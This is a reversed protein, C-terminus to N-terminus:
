NSDETKGAKLKALVAFPNPKTNSALKAKGNCDEHRPSYPLALLIEDEILTEVDLEPEILIGELDEEQAVAEDLKAEDAFQTLVTDAAVQFPMPEMCRQCILQVDVKVRLRLFPRELKDIGGVLHWQAEGATSALQDHLRTASKLPFVGSIEGGDRAFELSHIVTM